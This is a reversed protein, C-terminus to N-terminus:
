RELRTLASRLAGDVERELEAFPLADIGPLTRVVLGSGVPLQAFRVRLIERLRRAVRNRVVAKGIRKSVVFGVHPGGQEAFAPDLHVVVHSRAGRAGRRTIRRFEQGSHLRHQAWRM